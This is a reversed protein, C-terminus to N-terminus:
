LEKLNFDFKNYKTNGTERDCLEELKFRKKDGQSVFFFKGTQHFMNKDYVMYEIDNIKDEQNHERLYNNLKEQKKFFNRRDTKLSESKNGAFTSIPKIQLYHMKGSKDVVTIDVNCEADFFDVENKVEFGREELFKVIHLEVQHGDFTEIIAHNILDDFCMEVTIDERGIDRCYEFAIKELQEVTRGAHSSGILRNYDFCADKASKIYKDMFDQYSEPKFERFLWSCSGIRSRSVYRKTIFNFNKNFIRKIEEYERFSKLQYSEFM